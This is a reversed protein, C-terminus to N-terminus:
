LADHASVINNIEALHWWRSVYCASTEALDEVRPWKFYDSRGSTQELHNIMAKDKNIVHAVQGIYFHDDHLLFLCKIELNWDRTLEFEGGFNWYLESTQIFYQFLGTTYEEWKDMYFCLTLCQVYKYFEAYKVHSKLIGWYPDTIRIFILSCCVCVCVCLSIMLCQDDFTQLLFVNTAGIKM